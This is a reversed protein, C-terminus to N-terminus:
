GGRNPDDNGKHAVNGERSLRPLPLFVDGTGEGTYRPVTPSVWQYGDIIIPGVIIRM